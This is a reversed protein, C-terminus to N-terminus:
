AEAAGAGDASYAATPLLKYASICDLLWSSTLLEAEAGYRARAARVSAVTLPTPVLVHLPAGEFDTGRAKAKEKANLVRGGCMRALKETDAQSPVADANACVVFCHGDLIPRGGAAARERSRLVGGSQHMDGLVVHTRPDPELWKGAARSDRVWDIGVVWKGAAQACVSLPTRAPAM